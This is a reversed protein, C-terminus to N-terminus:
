WALYILIGQILDLSKQHNIIARNAIQQLLASELKRQLNINGYSTVTIVALLLTPKEFSMQQANMENSIVVFPFWKLGRKFERILLEVESLTVLGNWPGDHLCSSSGGQVSSHIPVNETHSLCDPLPDTGLIDGVKPHHDATISSVSPQDQTQSISSESFQPIPRQERETLLAVLGNVKHEIQSM